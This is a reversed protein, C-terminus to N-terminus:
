PLCVFTILYSLIVTIVTISLCIVTFYDAFDWSYVGGGGNCLDGERARWNWVIEMYM